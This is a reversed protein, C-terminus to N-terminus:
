KRPTNKSRLNYGTQEDAQLVCQYEYLQNLQQDFLSGEYDSETLFIQEDGDEVCHIDEELEQVEDEDEEDLVVNQFPARIRQEDTPNKARQMLQVQQNNRRWSQNQNQNRNPYDNQNRGKAPSKGDLKIKSMEYTLTELMKALKDVKQNSNSSISTEESRKKRNTKGKLKESALLNSEVKIAAEQM